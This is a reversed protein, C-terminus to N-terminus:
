HGGPHPPVFIAGRDFVDRVGAGVELGKAGLDRWAAFLDLCARAGIRGAAPAGPAESGDCAARDPLM